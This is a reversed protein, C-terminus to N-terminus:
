MITLKCIGRADIYPTNQWLVHYEDGDVLSQVQYRSANRIVQDITDQQMQLAGAGTLGNGAGTIGKSVGFVFGRNVKQDGFGQGEKSFLKAIKTKPGGGIATTGSFFFIDKSRPTGKMGNFSTLDYDGNSGIRNRGYDYIYLSNNYMDVYKEVSFGMVIKDDKDPSIQIRIPLAASAGDSIVKRLWEAGVGTCMAFISSSSGPMQMITQMIRNVKNLGSLYTDRYSHTFKFNAQDMQQLIGAYTPREQYASNRNRGGIEYTNPDFNARSDLVENEMSELVQRFWKRSMGTNYEEESSGDLAVSAVTIMEDSMYDGTVPLKYRNIPMPNYFTNYEQSDAPLLNSNTSAEGKSNGFRHNVPAGIEFLHSGNFTEGPLGSIQLNYEASGDTTVRRSVVRAFGYQDRLHVNEDEDLVPGRLGVVIIQNANIVDPVRSNETVRLPERKECIEKMKIYNSAIGIPKIEFMPDSRENVAVNDGFGWGLLSLISGRNESHVISTFIKNDLLLDNRFPMDLVMRRSRRRVPTSKLQNM